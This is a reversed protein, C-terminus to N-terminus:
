NFSIVEVLVGDAYIGFWVVDSGPFVVDPHALIQHAALDYGTPNDEPDRVVEVGGTSVAAQATALDNGGGMAIDNGYQAYHAVLADRLDGAFDDADVAAECGAVPPTGYDEQHGWAHTTFHEEHDYFAEGDTPTFRCRRLSLDQWTAVPPQYSFRGLMDTISDNGGFAGDGDVDHFIAIRDDGNFTMLGPMEVECHDAITQMPDNFTGGKTRCITRVAGPALTSAPLAETVSCSTAQNRVLCIGYDELEVPTAGCNFIEIAKNNMGQGEIYESIILCPPAVSRKAYDLLAELAAPGVYPVADLEEITDFPDDDATGLIADAGDRHAVINEAARKDLGADDDLVDFSAGNAVALILADDSGSPVDVLGQAHVYSVLKELASPGVYSVMDLEEISEFPDDDATGLIADAGNRHVVINEAARKDLRVDDDLLTLSAENVLDLVADTEAPTLAAVLDQTQEPASSGRCAVLAQMGVLLGPGVLALYPRMGSARTTM